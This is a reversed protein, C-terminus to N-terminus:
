QLIVTKTATGQGNQCTLTYTRKVQQLKNSLRESGSVQRSGSWDGSATCSTAYPFNWKLYDERLGEVPFGGVKQTETSGKLYANKSPLPLQAVHFDLTTTVGTIAGEVNKSRCKLAYSYLGSVNFAGLNRTGSSAVAGSVAKTSDPGSYDMACYDVKQSDGQVGWSLSDYEGLAVERDTNKVLSLTSRPATSADTQAVDIKLTQGSKRGDDSTCSITYSYLGAVTFPESFSKQTSDPGLTAYWRHRSSDATPTQSSALCEGAAWDFNWRLNVMSGNVIKVADPATNYEKASTITVGNPFEATYGYLHPEAMAPVSVMAALLPLYRIKM